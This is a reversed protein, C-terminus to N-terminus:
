EKERVWKKLSAFMAEEGEDRLQTLFHTLEKATQPNMADKASGHLFYDLPDSDKYTSGHYTKGAAMRDCIMEALYHRPMPVAAYRHETPSIDTWYEWHHPNRGKHHMWAVSYGHAKREDETPSHHGDYFAVGHLFEVPSYKSLDHILGQGLIGAKACHVIVLHRHASVTKLHGCFRRFGNM